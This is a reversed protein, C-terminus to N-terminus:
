ANSYSNQFKLVSQVGHTLAQGFAEHNKPDVRFDAVEVIM